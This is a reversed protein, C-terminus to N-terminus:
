RSIHLWAPGRAGQVAAITGLLSQRLRSQQIDFALIRRGPESGGEHPRIGYVEVLRGVAQDITDPSGQLIATAHIGSVDPAAVGLNVYVDVSLEPHRGTLPALIAAAQPLKAEAFTETRLLRAQEARDVAM